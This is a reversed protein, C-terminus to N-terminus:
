RNEESEYCSIEEVGEGQCGGEEDSVGCFRVTMSATGLVWGKDTVYEVLAPGLVDKDKKLLKKAYKTNVDGSLSYLTFVYDYYNNGFSCPGAYDYKPEGPWTGANTGVNGANDTDLSTASKPIDYLTWEYRSCAHDNNSTMTLMFSKTGDPANKWSLPPSVGASSKSEFDDNTSDTPAKCTYADPLVLDNGIASSKLTFVKDDDAANAWKGEKSETAKMQQPVVDTVQQQPVQSKMSSIAAFTLLCIALFTGVGVWRTARAPAPSEMAQHKNYNAGTRIPFHHVDAQLKPIKKKTHGWGGAGLWAGM